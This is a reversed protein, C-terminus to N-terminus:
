NGDRSIFAAPAPETGWLYRRDIRAGLGTLLEYGITGMAEAIAEIPANPGFLEVREGAQPISPADTADFVVTDMSVRGLLPLRQGKFFCYTRNSAARLYGDGYGIAVTILRSDRALRATAGYGVTEGERATRMQVIPAKLTAVTALRADPSAAVACGYLGIGARPLDSRARAGMFVGATNALSTEADPFKGAIAHFDAIQRDNMPNDPGDEACAFHTAVLIIRLSSPLADAEAPDMGLRNMGTDFHAAAPAGDGDRAWLEAQDLSNLVPILNADDFLQIDDTSPGNLIWIRADPAIDGLAYRLAAGEEPYVVFFDRADAEAALARAAPTAGVGYGDCKVVAGLRGGGAYTRLMRFNAVIAALDIEAHPGRAVPGPSPTEM